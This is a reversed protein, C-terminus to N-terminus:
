DYRALGAAAAVREPIGSEGGYAGADGDLNVVLPAGDKM